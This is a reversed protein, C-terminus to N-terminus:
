LHASVAVVHSNMNQARADGRTSELLRVHLASFIYVVNKDSTSLTRCWQFPFQTDPAMLKCRCRELMMQASMFMRINNVNSVQSMM